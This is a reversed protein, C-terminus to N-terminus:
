TLEFAVLCPNKVHLIVVELTALHFCWVFFYLIAGVIQVNESLLNLFFVTFILDFCSIFAEVHIPLVSQLAFSTIVIKFFM